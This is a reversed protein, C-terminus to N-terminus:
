LTDLYDKATIYVPSLDSIDADFGKFDITINIDVVGDMSNFERAANFCKVMDESTFKQQQTNYWKIFFVVAKYVGESFLQNPLENKSDIIHCGNKEIIVNFRPISNIKDVVQMLLDMSTEYSLLKINDPTDLSDIEEEVEAIANDLTCVEGSVPYEEGLYYLFPVSLHVSTDDMFKRILDEESM